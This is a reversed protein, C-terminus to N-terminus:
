EVIALKAGYDVADKEAVLLEKIIGECNAKIPHNINMSYVNGIIDDASIKDGEKIKVDTFIGVFGSKIYKKPLEPAASSTTVPPAKKKPVDAAVEISFDGNSYGFKALGKQSIVATVEKAKALLHEGKKSM